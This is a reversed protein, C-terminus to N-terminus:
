YDIKGGQNEPLKLENKEMAIRIGDLIGNIFAGSEETGYKKAVEIAENISVKLPIDECFFLEFIAIRLINRDVCGMRSIKWNASFQEIIPDITEKKQKVGNVLRKLYPIAQKAPSFSNCYLDLNEMSSNQQIDMYYLAQMALERSRTRIKM